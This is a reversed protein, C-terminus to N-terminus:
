LAKVKWSQTTQSARAESPDSLGLEKARTNVPREM